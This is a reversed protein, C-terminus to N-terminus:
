QENGPGGIARALHGGFREPHDAAWARAVLKALLDEAIRLDCGSMPEASATRRISLQHRHRRSAARGACDRPPKAPHSERPAPPCCLRPSHGHQGHAPRDPTTEEQYRRQM